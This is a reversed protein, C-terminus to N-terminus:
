CCCCCCCFSGRLFVAVIHEVLALRPRLIDRSSDRVGIIHADKVRRQPVSLLRRSGGQRRRLLQLNRAVQGLQSHVNDLRAEGNGRRIVKSGDLLDGVHHSVLDKLVAIHGDDASEGPGKLHVNLAGPVRDLAGLPGAHVGEDGGGLYVHLGLEALCGVLDYLDGGLGHAEGLGEATVVNLETGFVGSAGVWLEEVFYELGDNLFAGGGEVNGVGGAPVHGPLKSFENLHQALVNLAGVADDEGGVTLVVQAQGSGVTQGSCLVPGTLQLAGDVANSLPSSVGTQLFNDHSQRELPVFLELTSRSSSLEVRGDVGNVNRGGGFHDRLVSAHDTLGVLGNDSGVGKLVFRANVLVAHNFVLARIFDHGGLANTEHSTVRLRPSANDKSLM